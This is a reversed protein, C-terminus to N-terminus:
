SPPEHLRFLVHDIGDAFTVSSCSEEATGIDSGWTDRVRTVSDILALSHFGLDANLRMPPRVEYAHAQALQQILACLGGSLGPAVPSMELPLTEQTGLRSSRGHGPSTM